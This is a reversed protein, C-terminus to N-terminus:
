AKVSPTPAFKSRKRIAEGYKWFIFPIPALLVGVSAILTGAGGVGMAHFMQDVFLPSAAALASRCVTNAANASAAYMLYSDGLYNLFGVFILSISIALFVGALTPVIWPVSNYEGTWAIWYMSIPFLIGAAMPLPLRNEARWETPSSQADRLRAERKSNILIICGGLFGGIVIGLLPLEGVGANWGRKVQFVIPYISFLMYLLAYVISIYVAVAACIPDFLIIWPRTLAVRFIGLLTRDSDEAPARVSERGPIKAARIRRAKHMLIIPGMTEPITLTLLLSPAALWLLEYFAWRWDLKLQFFGSTVPGLAPGMFSAMVYCAMAASLEVPGWLDFLLAPGNSITSSALTGCLFRGVLLGGFNPTFACLFTFGFYAIFTVHFFPRRGYFESLPGWVLPGTCYGLLFLTTVLNAAEMSVHLDDSISQLCGTPVTSAFTANLCLLMAVATIYRRRAVSWNKPNDSDGPSFAVRAKDDLPVSEQGAEADPVSPAPRALLSDAIRMVFSM